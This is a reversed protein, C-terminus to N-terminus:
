PELDKLAGRLRELGRGMRSKVTTEPAGLIAAIERFSLGQYHRLVVVEREAEPLGRIAGAVRGALERELFEEGAGLGHAHGNLREGARQLAGAQAARSRHRDRCLNVVVRYLWTSLRSRGAFSRAETWTRLFATQRVDEAAQLDGTLRYALGLVVPDWRAVVREFAAPDRRRCLRILDEDSPEM